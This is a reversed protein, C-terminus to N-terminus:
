WLFPGAVRRDTKWGTLRGKRFQLFIADDRSYFHGGRTVAVLIEHGPRGSVYALPAGLAASTEEATLGFQLPATNSLTLVFPPAPTRHPEARSTTGTIALVTAVLLLRIM